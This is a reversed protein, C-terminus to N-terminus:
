YYKINTKYSKIKERFSQHNKIELDIENIIKERFLESFRIAIKESFFFYQIHHLMELYVDYQYNIENLTITDGDTTELYAPINDTTIIKKVKLAIIQFNDYRCSLSYIYVKSFEM